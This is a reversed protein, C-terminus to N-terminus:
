LSLILGTDPSVLGDASQQWATDIAETGRTLKPTIFAQSVSYFQVMDANLKAAYEPGEEKIRQAMYDPAFFFTPEVGPLSQPNSNDAEWETAGVTVSAALNKEFRTHLAHRITSSGRMDTVSTPADSLALASIDDYSHTKAYLGTRETFATNKSSTLGITEVDSDSANISWAMALSTKSSASTIMATRLNSEHRTILDALLWGTAFLPRFLMQQPELDAVYAPDDTTFTYTNYFPSLGTRSDANDRFAIGASTVKKAIFANSAPVYGYVRQGPTIGEAKSEAVTAFGWMPVRGWEEDAPFFNWYQMAGGFVAYTVNNSTLAFSDVALLVDGDELAPVDYEHWRTKRIDDKRVHHEILKSM